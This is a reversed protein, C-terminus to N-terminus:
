LDKIIRDSHLYVGIYVLANPLRPQSEAGKAIVYFRLVYVFLQSFRNLNNLIQFCKDLPSYLPVFITVSIIRIGGEGGSEKFSREM